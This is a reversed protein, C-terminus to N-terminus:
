LAGTCSNNEENCNKYSTNEALTLIEHFKLCCIYNTKGRFWEGLSLGCNNIKAICLITKWLTFKCTQRTITHIIKWLSPPWGAFQCCVRFSSVLFRILFRSYSKPPILLSYCRSDLSFKLSVISVLRLRNRQRGRKHKRIWWKRVRWTVLWLWFGHCCQGRWPTHESSCSRSSHVAVVSFVIRRELLQFVLSKYNIIRPRFTCERNLLRVFRVSAWVSDCSRLWVLIRVLAIHFFLRKKWM